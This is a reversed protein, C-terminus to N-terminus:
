GRRKPTHDAKASGADAADTAAQHELITQTLDIRNVVARMDALREMPDDKCCDDIMRLVCIPIDKTEGRNIENLRKGIRSQLHMGATKNMETRLAGGSLVKYLTAGLGFVDTKHDLVSKKAQEPAMYDPTGQVREKAQLMASSQGFDILKVKSEPTVILNGPKLDAHVFGFHHMAHLAEAIERFHTLLGSLEWRFRSSGMDIGDVYEMLLVAAQLRLRKRVYRLDYVKRLAPHNLVQGTAQEAKLQEIFKKEDETTLPVHKAARVEGTDIHEVCYLVSNAGRGIERVIRYDPLILRM